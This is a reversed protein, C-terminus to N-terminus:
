ITQSWYKAIEITKNNASKLDSLECKIPCNYILLYESTQIKGCECNTDEEKDIIGWKKPNEQRDLEKLISQLCDTKDQIKYMTYREDSIQETRIMIM